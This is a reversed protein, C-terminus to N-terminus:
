CIMVIMGYMGVATTGAVARNCNSRGRNHAAVATSRASVYQQLEGVQLEVEVFDQVEFILKGQRSANSVRAASACGEARARGQLTRRFARPLGRSPFGEISLARTLLHVQRRQGLAVEDEPLGSLRSWPWRLLLPTGM